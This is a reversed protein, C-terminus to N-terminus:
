KFESHGELRRQATSLTWGTKEALIEAASELAALPDEGEGILRRKERLADKIFNRVLLTESLSRRQRGKSGKASHLHRLVMEAAEIPIPVFQDERAWAVAVQRDLIEHAHAASLNDLKKHGLISAYVWWFASTDKGGWQKEVWETFSAGLRKKLQKALDDPSLAKAPMFPRAKLKKVRKM